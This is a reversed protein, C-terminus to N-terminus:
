QHLRLARNAPTGGACYSGRRAAPDDPRSRETKPEGVVAVGSIWQLTHRVKVSEADVDAWRLGLLEGQRMGTTVAHSPDTSSDDEENRLM